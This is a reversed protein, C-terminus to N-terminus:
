TVAYFLTAGIVVVFLGALRVLAHPRHSLWQSFSRIRERGVLLMMVGSFLVLTGFFRLVMPLRTEAAVMLLVLGVVLRVAAIAFHLRGQHLLALRTVGWPVVMVVSGLVIMFLGFVAVVTAM